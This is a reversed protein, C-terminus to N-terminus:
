RYQGWFPKDYEELRPEPWHGYYKLIEEKPKQKSWYKTFEDFTKGARLREARMEGRRKETGEADTERTEPDLVLGYVKDAVEQTILGSQLDLLVEEPDRELVDGYGGGGGLSWVFIDGEDFKQTEGSSSSILYEGELPRETLLEYQNAFKLDDGEAMLQMVNTNRIVFRPNPPGWYGGFVGPNHSLKDASGRSTMMCGRDGFATSIEVLPAGGRTKGYGHNNKEVVRGLVLQPLRSDIDEVEGSDTFPGWYFGLASEGDLDYRAGQGAANATGTFNATQYGRRNEGAFIYLLLNRSHPSSVAERYPSDFLIKSGVVHLNQAVCASISTGEGHAVEASSNAISPGEVLVRLPELLGANPPLGRFFYSFLYVGLSARVLHWTSHMSGAFNEPSVSQVLVTMEDGEKFVTTPIRTLGPERGVDDNFLVARYVGDNLERLRDRAMQETSTLIKRLGGVTTAVGRREVERLFRQRIRICTAVRAKLDSGFVFPNRVSGCMFEFIDRRIEDNEGIRMQCIHLGEEYRSTAKPSFGGPSVSGSDGQHGGVEAWAILEGEYFIPMAVFMDFTHVGGGLEDNFFYIDGDKLGVTHDNRYYKNIYKVQTYNLLSHFYIGTAVVAPDGSATFISCNMDGTIIGESISLSMYVDRAEEVISTLKHRMLELDVDSLRDIGERELETLPAPGEKLLSPDWAPGKGFANGDYVLGEFLRAKEDFLRGM